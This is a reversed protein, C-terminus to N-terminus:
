RSPRRRRQRHFVLLVFCSVYIVIWVRELRYIFVVLRFLVFSGNMEIADNGVAVFQMVYTKVYVYAVWNISSGAVVTICLQM